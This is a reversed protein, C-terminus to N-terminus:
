QFMVSAVLTSIRNGSEIIFVANRIILHELKLGFRM